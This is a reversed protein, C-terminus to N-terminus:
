FVFTLQESCRDKNEQYKVYKRIIEANLGVTDVFYGKSWFQNVWYLGKCLRGFNTWISGRIFPDLM